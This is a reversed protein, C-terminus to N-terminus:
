EKSNRKTASVRALHLGGEEDILNVNVNNPYLMFSKRDATLVTNNNENLIANNMGERLVGRKEVRNM